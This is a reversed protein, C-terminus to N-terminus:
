KTLGAEKCVAVLQRLAEVTFRMSQSKKGRIQRAESGYTDLQLYKKGERDVLVTYTCRVLRHEAERDLLQKELKTVLAM